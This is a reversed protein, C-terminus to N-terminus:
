ADVLHSVSEVTGVVEVGVSSHKKKPPPTKENPGNRYIGRHLHRCTQDLTKGILCEYFKLQVVVLDTEYM